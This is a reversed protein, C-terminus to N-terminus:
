FLRYTHEGHARGQIVHVSSLHIKALALFISASMYSGKLGQRPNVRHDGSGHWITLM